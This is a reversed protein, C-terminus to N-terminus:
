CTTVPAMPPAPLPSRAQNLALLQALGKEKMGLTAAEAMQKAVVEGDKLEFGGLQGSKIAMDIVAPMDEAKLGFEAYRSDRDTRNRPSSNSATAGKVVAPLMTQADKASVAGSAIM